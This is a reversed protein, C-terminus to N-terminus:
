LRGNARLLMLADVTMFGRWDLSAAESWQPWNFTWGGDEQQGAALKDLHADITAADFLARAMSEPKPAFALVGHTEGPADPDLEVLKLDLLLSGVKGFAQRARDRDPVCELFKLVGFMEYPGPASLEGIREWMVDTARDLWPHTVGRSHLAGAILGTQILSAPRGDEPEWWPARPWDTVTAEVMTAGGGVAENRELWDCADRVLDADWASAEDMTRLAMETPAPQSLPCRLDPELANGFGGDANRYAAVADRVPTAAGGRFFLQFRRQDLVRGVEALFRDAANLDPTKKMRSMEGAVPGATKFSDAV